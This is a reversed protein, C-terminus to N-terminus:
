GDRAVAAGSEPTHDPRPLERMRTLPSLVVPAAGLVTGAVSIWLSAQMGAAVGLWGGLLSGLPLVGWVVFRISANMRGLLRPPCLRQRLTVQTINYVVVFFAILFNGAPLLVIALQPAFLSLPLPVMAVGFAISSISLAAGEGFLKTFRPTLLAGLLGGVAGFSFMVGLVAPGLGLDRLVLLPLLTFAIGSFLNTISTTGTIRRLLPQHWVFAVGEAIERLLPQRAARDPPAETDRVRGLSLASALYTGATFLLVAPATILSLLGGAIGPGAINAVQATAELKSNAEGVQRDEVLLPIYSQYSVDFFLTAVGVAAAVAILHWLELVGTLALVPVAALLLMRALDAAIMVRRKRMRDVWAGSPLGLVLFAATSAAVLLGMEWENAGLLTIAVVPLALETFQAGFQSVGQGAWFWRFNGSRALSDPTM